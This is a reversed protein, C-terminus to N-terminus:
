ALAERALQEAPVGMERDFRALMKRARELRGRIAPVAGPEDAHMAMKELYRDDLAVPRDCRVLKDALFVVEREAVPADDALDLDFHVRVIGAADPFGHDLLLEAGAEEHRRTGKGIDHVLAASRVLDMDLPYAPNRANLAACLAEAVRAVARCHRMVHGTGGSLAWLQACEEPTPYGRGADALAAEYDEPGDIDRLIASDAVDLDHADRQHRELVARLGGEGDHALIDPLLERGILPPHGREDRFRPYVIAPRELGFSHMLRLVTERRVLPIDAPLVFFGEADVPLARAGALISSYMGRAFDPNHVAQAGAERAAGAVEDGRNGTVVIIREVGASRFLGVVRGLVTTEGLPLLPKLRGMRSSFGAAPVIAALPTM